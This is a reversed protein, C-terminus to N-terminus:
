LEVGKQATWGTDIGHKLPHMETVTDAVDVLGDSACRGTLVVVTDPAANEVAAIVESEELLERFVAYAIEDLVIMDWKGSSLADAAYRLGEAAARRHEPFDPADQAPLFGRGAQVIETGALHRLASVEGTSDDAKVFQIILSRLGHGSARLVMGLAATTKGKGTGTFLLTRNRHPDTM